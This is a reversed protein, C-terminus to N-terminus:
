WVEYGVDRLLSWFDESTFEREEIAIEGTSTTPGNIGALPVPGTREIDRNVPNRSELWQTAELALSLPGAGPGGPQAYGGALQVTGGKDADTIQGGVQRSAPNSHDARAQIPKPGPETLQAAAETRLGLWRTPGESIHNSIPSARTYTSRNPDGVAPDVHGHTTCSDGSRGIM